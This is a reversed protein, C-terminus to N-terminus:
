SFLQTVLFLQLKLWSHNDNYANLFRVLVQSITYNVVINQLKIVNIYIIIIFDSAVNLNIPSFIDGYPRM